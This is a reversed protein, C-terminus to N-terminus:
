VKNLTCTCTGTNAIGDYHLTIHDQRTKCRAIWLPVSLSDSFDELRSKYPYCPELSSGM